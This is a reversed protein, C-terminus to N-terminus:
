DRADREPEAGRCHHPLPVHHRFQHRGDPPRQQEMGDTEVFVTRREGAGDCAEDSLPQGGALRRYDNRRCRVGGGNAVLQHCTTHVGLFPDFPALEQDEIGM